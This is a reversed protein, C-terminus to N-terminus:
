DSIGESTSLFSRGFATASLEIWNLTARTSPGSSNATVSAANVLQPKLSGCAIFAQKRSFASDNRTTM